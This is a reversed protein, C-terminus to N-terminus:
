GAEETEPSVSPSLFEDLVSFDMAHKNAIATLIGELHGIRAAMIKCSREQDLFVRRYKANEDAFREITEAAQRIMADGALIGGSARRRLADALEKEPTSM